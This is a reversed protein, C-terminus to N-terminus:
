LYYENIKKRREFEENMIACAKEANEYTNFYVEGLHRRPIFNRERVFFQHFASDFIITFVTDGAHIDEYKFDLCYLDHLQELLLYFHIASSIQKARENTEWTNYNEYHLKDSRQNHWYYTETNNCTTATYYISCYSPHYRQNIDKTEEEYIKKLEELEKTKEQIKQELENKTM